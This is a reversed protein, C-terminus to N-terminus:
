NCSSPCSSCLLSSCSGTKQFFVDNLEDLEENIYMEVNETIANGIPLYVLIGKDKLIKYSILQFGKSIIIDIDLNMLLQNYDDKYFLSIETTDILKFQKSSLNLICYKDAGSFKNAITFEGVEVNFNIPLCINVQKKPLNEM